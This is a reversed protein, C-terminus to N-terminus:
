QDFEVRFTHVQWLHESNRAAVYLLSDAEVVKGPLPLDRALVRGSALDFLDARWSPDAVATEEPNRDELVVVVLSDSLVHISRITTFSRLWADYKARGDPGTFGWREPQSPQRFSPSPGGFTGKLEGGREYRHVPYLSNVVALEDGAPAAHTMFWGWWYPVSEMREDRPHFSSEPTGDYQLVRVENGPGEPRMLVAAIREEWAHIATLFYTDDVTFVTDVALDRDIRAVAATPRAPDFPLSEPAGTVYLHDDRGVIVSRPNTGSPQMLAAATGDPGSVSAMYEGTPDYKHLHATSGDLVFWQGDANVALDAVDFVAPAGTGELPVTGVHVLAAGPLAVPPLDPESACAVVLVTAVIRRLVLPAEELRAM